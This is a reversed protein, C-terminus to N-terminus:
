VVAVAVRQVEEGLGALRVPLRRSRDGAEVARLFVHQDSEEGALVDLHDAATGALYGGRTAPVLVGDDQLVAAQAGARTALRCFLLPPGPRVLKGVFSPLPSQPLLSRLLPM